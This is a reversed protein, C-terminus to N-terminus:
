GAQMTLVTPNVTTQMSLTTVGTPGTTAATQVQVSLEQNDAVPEYPSVVVIQGVTQPLKGSYWRDRDAPTGVKIEANAQKWAVTNYLSIKAVMSGDPIAVTQIHTGSSPGEIITVVTEISPLRQRVLSRAPDLWRRVEVLHLRLQGTCGQHPPDPALEDPSQRTTLQYRQWLVTMDPNTAM